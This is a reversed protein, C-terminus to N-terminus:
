PAAEDLAINVLLVNVRPEGLVGFQRSETHARVLERVKTEDLQRAAAVRAVQLEAAAPTIHPDLGSGSATGLDVPVPMKPDLGARRLAEVRARANKALDPHLPGFNSGGSAGANYAAPATASLRGWFYRPAAFPQGILASGVPKGKSEILSGNAQYPMLAQAGVTVLGPYILGTLVTMWILTVVSTRVMGLINGM